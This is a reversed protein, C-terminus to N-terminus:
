VLIAILLIAILLTGVGIYIGGSARKKDKLEKKLQKKDKSNEVDRIEDLHERMNTVSEEMLKNESAPVVLTQTNASVNENAAFAATSGVTLLLVIVFLISKKM